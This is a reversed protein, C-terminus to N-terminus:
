LSMALEFTSPAMPGVGYRALPWTLSRFTPVPLSPFQCPVNFTVAPKEIDAASKSFYGNLTLPQM